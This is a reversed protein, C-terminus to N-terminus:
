FIIWCILKSDIDIQREHRWIKLWNLYQNNASSNCLGLTFLLQVKLMEQLMKISYGKFKTKETFAFLIPCSMICVLNDTISNVALAFYTLEELQFIHAEKANFSYLHFRRVINIVENM